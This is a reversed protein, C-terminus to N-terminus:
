PTPRIWLYSGYNNEGTEMCDNEAQSVMGCNYCFDTLKEYKIALFLNSSDVNRANIGKGLPCTIDVQVLLKM